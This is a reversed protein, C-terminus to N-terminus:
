LIRSASRRQGITPDRIEAAWKGWPRQRVGRYTKNKGKSVVVAPAIGSPVMPEPAVMESSSTGDTPQGNPSQLSFTTHQGVCTITFSMAERVWCGQLAQLDDILLNPDPLSAHTFTEVPTADSTKLNNGPPTKPPVVAKSSADIVESPTSSSERLRAALASQPQPQQLSPAPSCLSAPGRMLQDTSSRGGKAEVIPLDRQPSARFGLIAEGECASKRHIPSAGNSTM